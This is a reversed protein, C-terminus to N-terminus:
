LAPEHAITMNTQMALVLTPRDDCRLLAVHSSMLVYSSFHFMLPFVMFRCLDSLRALRSRCWDSRRGRWVAFREAGAAAVALGTVARLSGGEERSGSLRWGGAVLGTWVPLLTLGKHMWRWTM